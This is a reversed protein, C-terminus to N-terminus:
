RQVEDIITMTIVGGSESLTASRAMLPASNIFVQGENPTASENGWRDLSSMAFPISAGYEFRRVSPIVAEALERGWPQRGHDFNGFGAYDKLRGHPAGGFSQGGHLPQRQRARVRLTVLPATTDLATLAANPGFLRFAVTERQDGYPAKVHIRRM